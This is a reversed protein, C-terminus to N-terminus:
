LSVKPVALFLFYLINELLQILPISNRDSVIESLWCVAPLSNPILQVLEYDAILKFWNWVCKDISLISVVVLSFFYKL